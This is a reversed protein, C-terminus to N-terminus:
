RELRREWAGRWGVERFTRVVEFSALDLAVAAGAGRALEVARELLGPIYLCDAPPLRTPPGAAHAPNCCRSAPM